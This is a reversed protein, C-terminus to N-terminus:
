NHLNVFQNLSLAVFAIVIALLLVRWMFVAPPWVNEKPDMPGNLFRSLQNTIMAAVRTRTFGVMRLSLAQVM